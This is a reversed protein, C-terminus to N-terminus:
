KRLERELLENAITDITKQARHQQGAANAKIVGDLISTPLKCLMERYVTDLKEARYIYEETNINDDFLAMKLDSNSYGVKRCAKSYCNNTATWIRELETQDLTDKGDTMSLISELDKFNKTQSILQNLMVQMLGVQTCDTFM